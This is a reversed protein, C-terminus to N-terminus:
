FWCWRNTCGKVEFGVGFGAELYYKLVEFGVGGGSDFLGSKLDGVVERGTPVYMAMIHVGGLLNIAVPYVALWTKIWTFM